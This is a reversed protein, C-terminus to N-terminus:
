IPLRCQSLVSCLIFVVSLFGLAGIGIFSLWWFFILNARVHDEKRRLRKVNIVLGLSSSFFGGLLFYIFHRLPQRDWVEYIPSFKISPFLFTKPDAEIFLMIAATLIILNTASFLPLMRVFLDKGRRRNSLLLGLDMEM